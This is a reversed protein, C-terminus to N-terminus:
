VNEVKEKDVDMAEAKAKDKQVEEVEMKKEDKNTSKKKKKKGSGGFMGAYLKQQKQVYKKHRKTCIKLLKKVYSNEKDLSLAKKLDKKALDLFGDELRAQGRRMLAKLNNEDENLVNSAREIANSWDKLKVYILSLNNNASVLLQSKKKALAEDSFDVDIWDLCKDYKTIAGKFRLAKFLGNGAEKYRMGGM